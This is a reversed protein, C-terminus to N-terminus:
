SIPTVVSVLGSSPRQLLRSVGHKVSDVRELIPDFKQRHLSINRRDKDKQVSRVVLKIENRSFGVERLMEERVSPPIALEWKSRRYGERCNEYADVDLVVTDKPDYRWDIGIPPGSSTSPNDDLNRGYERFEVTDFRVLK